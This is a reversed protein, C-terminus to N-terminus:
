WWWPLKHQFIITYLIKNSIKLNHPHTRRQILNMMMIRTRLEQFSAIVIIKLWIEFQKCHLYKIVMSHWMEIQSKMDSEVRVLISQFILLSISEIGSSTTVNFPFTSSLRFISIKVTFNKCEKSFQFNSEIDSTTQRSSHPSFCEIVKTNMCQRSFILNPHQWTMNTVSFITERQSEGRELHISREDLLIVSSFSCPSVILECNIRHWRRPCKKDWLCCWTISVLFM